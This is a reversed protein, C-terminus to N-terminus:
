WVRRATEVAAMAIPVSWAVTVTGHEREVLGLWHSQETTASEGPRKCEIAVFRGIPPLQGHCHICRLQTPVVAILDASGEALGYRVPIGREDRLVGTNNRWHLVGATALAKRVDSQVDRELTPRAPRDPIRPM